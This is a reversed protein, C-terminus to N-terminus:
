RSPTGSSTLATVTAENLAVISSMLKGNAVINSVIAQVVPVVMSNSSIIKLEIWSVVLKWMLISAFFNVAASAFLYAFEAFLGRSFFISSAVLLLTSFAQMAASAVALNKTSTSYVTDAVAEIGNGLSPVPIECGPFRKVIWPLLCCGISFWQVPHNLVHSFVAVLIALALAIVAGLAAIGAWAEGFKVLVFIQRSYKEILLEGMRTVADVIGQGGPSTPRDTENENGETM